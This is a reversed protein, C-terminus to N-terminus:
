VRSQKLANMIYERDYRGKDDNILKNFTTPNIRISDDKKQLSNINRGLNRRLYKIGNTYYNMKAIM